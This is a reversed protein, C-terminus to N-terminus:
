QFAYELACFLMEDNKPSNPKFRCISVSYNDIYSRM